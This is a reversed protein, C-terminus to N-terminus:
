DDDGGDDGDDGDGADDDADVGDGDDTDDDPEPEPEPEPEPAPPPPSPTPDEGGVVPATQQDRRTETETAPQGASAPTPPEVPDAGADPGPVGGDDERLVVPAIADDDPRGTACASLGAAAFLALATIAVTARSSSPARAMRTVIASLRSADM